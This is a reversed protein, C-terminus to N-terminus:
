ATFSRVTTIDETSTPSSTRSPRPRRTKPSSSSSAATARTSSSAPSKWPKVIVSPPTLVFPRTRDYPRVRKVGLEVVRAVPGLDIAATRTLEEAWRRIRGPVSRRPGLRELASLLAAEPAHESTIVHLARELEVVATTTAVRALRAREEPALANRLLLAAAARLLPPVAPDEAFAVLRERCEPRDSARTRRLTELWAAMDEGQNPPFLVATEGGSWCRAIVDRLEAVIREPLKKQDPGVLEVQRGGTTRLVTHLADDEFTDVDTFAVFAGRGLGPLVIGDSGVRVPLPWLAGIVFAGGIVVAIPLVWEGLVMALSFGVLASLTAIAIALWGAHPSRALITVNMGSQKLLSCAALHHLSFM